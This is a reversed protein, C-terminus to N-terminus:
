MLDALMVISKVSYVELEEYIIRDRIIAIDWRLSQEQTPHCSQIVRRFSQNDTLNTTKNIRLSIEESLANLNTAKDIAHQMVVAEGSLTSWAKGDSM